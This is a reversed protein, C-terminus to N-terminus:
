LMSLRPRSVAAVAQPRLAGLDVRAEGEQRLQQGRLGGRAAPRTGTGGSRPGRRYPPVFPLTPLATTRPSPPSPALPLIDLPPPSPRVVRHRRHTDARTSRAQPM